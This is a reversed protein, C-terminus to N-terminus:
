GAGGANGGHTGGLDSDETFAEPDSTAPTDVDAEIDLGEGGVDTGEGLPPADETSDGGSGDVTQESM